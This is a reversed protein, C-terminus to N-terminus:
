LERQEDRGQMASRRQDTVVHVGKEHRGAMAAGERFGQLTKKDAKSEKFYKKWSEEKSKEEVVFM